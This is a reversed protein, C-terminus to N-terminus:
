GHTYSREARQVAIRSIAITTVIVIAIGIEADATTIGAITM